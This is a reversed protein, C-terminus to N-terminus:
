PILAKKEAAELARRLKGEVDRLKEAKPIRYPFNDLLKNHNEIDARVAALEDLALGAAKALDMAM